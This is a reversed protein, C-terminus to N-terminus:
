LESSEVTTDIEFGDATAHTVPAISPGKPGSSFLAQLFQM